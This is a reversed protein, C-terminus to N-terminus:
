PKSPSVCVSMARPRPTGDTSKVRRRWPPLTGNRAEAARERHHSEPPRHGGRNPTSVPRMRQNAPAAEVHPMGLVQISIRDARIGARPRRCATGPFPARRLARGRNRLSGHGKGCRRASHIQRHLRPIPEWATHYGPVASPSRYLIDPQLAPPAVPTTARKSDPTSNGRRGALVRGHRRTPGAPAGHMPWIQPAPAFACICILSGFIM